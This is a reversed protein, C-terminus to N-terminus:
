GDPGNRRHVCILASEVLDDGVEQCISKTMGGVLCLHPNRHSLFTCVRHDGDAVVTRAHGTLVRVACELSEM